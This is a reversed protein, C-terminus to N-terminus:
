SFNNILKKLFFNPILLFILLKIKKKYSHIQYIKKIFLTYNRNFINIIAEMYLTKEIAYFFKDSCDISQNKFWYKFEKIYIKYNNHSFSKNHIRYTLLPSQISAFFFKKSIRVFFDFDGIINYKKNFFEKNKFFVERKMLVTGIGIFYQNLLKKFIIGEPLKKNYAKKKLGTFQNLNFYNSYVLDVKKNKIKKVQKYLKNKEWYDDVDLFAIFDGKSKRIALNRAEYLSTHTKSYFYRLRKDNFNKYISKSNDISKNDWFIIEFNKYTQFLVSKIAESLYKEGNYCNIIISVLYNSM